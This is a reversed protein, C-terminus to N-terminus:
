SHWSGTSAEFAFLTPALERRRAHLSDIEARLRAIQRERSAIEDDLQASERHLAERERRALSLAPDVDASVIAARADAEKDDDAEDDSVVITTEVARQAKANRVAALAREMASRLEESTNVDGADDDVDDASDRHPTQLNVAIEDDDVATSQPSDSDDVLAFQQLQAFNTDIASRLTRTTTTTGKLLKMTSLSARLIPLQDLHM